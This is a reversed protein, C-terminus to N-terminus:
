APRPRTARAVLERLTSAAWPHPQRHMATRSANLLFAQDVLTVL